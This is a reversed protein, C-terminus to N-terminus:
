KITQLFPNFNEPPPPYIGIDRNSLGQQTTLNLMTYKGRVIKQSYYKNSSHMEIKFANWYKKMIM